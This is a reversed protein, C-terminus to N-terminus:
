TFDWLGNLSIYGKKKYKSDYAFFLISRSRICKKGVIELNHIDDLM